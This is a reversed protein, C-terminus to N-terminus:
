GAPLGGEMALRSASQAPLDVQRDSLRDNEISESCLNMALAVAGRLAGDQEFRAPVLPPPFPVAQVL